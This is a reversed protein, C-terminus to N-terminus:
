NWQPELLEHNEDAPLMGKFALILERYMGWAYRKLDSGNAVRPMPRFTPRYLGFNCKVFAHSM